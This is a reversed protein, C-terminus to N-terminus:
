RRPLLYVKAPNRDYHQLLRKTNARVQGANLQANVVFPTEEVWKPNGFAKGSPHVPETHVSYVKSRFGIPVDEVTLRGESHLRKVVGTLIEHWYELAQESGDWFRIAAPCPTGPLPEYESLAIWGPSPPRSTPAQEPPHPPEGETPTLAPPRDGLIPTAAMVPKGSALNPRWLLLLLLASTHAPTNAIEVELKRRDNLQGREFVSYLEWHNGDTLGAYEIDSANAYNLMQMRHSSLAEGLKKAEVIAAPHGDTRLLAYDAWGGNGKYEPTVVEPDSVDWGLARLLPDILAMRTRTENERLAGRHSRMREQLLEICGVLDDLPM